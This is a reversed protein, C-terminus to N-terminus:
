RSRTRSSMSFFRETIRLACPIITEFHSYEATVGCHTYSIPTQVLGRARRCPCARAISRSTHPCRARFPFVTVNNTFSKLAGATASYSDSPNQRIPM